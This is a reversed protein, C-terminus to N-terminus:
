YHNNPAIGMPKVAETLTKAPFVAKCGLLIATQLTLPFDEV